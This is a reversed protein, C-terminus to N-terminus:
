PRSAKVRSGEDLSNEPALIVSEGERVGETIEAQEDNLLGVKVSQLRARGGRVAFVEWGGQESRFLASRPVILTSPNQRTFIRVRVRYDVGLALRDQLQPLEGEAFRVIVKVRQQEVGLSSIKTFGAPDVRQVYGTTNGGVAPGYIEVATNQVIGVADQSLVDTEVELQRLDGIELLVTGAAVFRESSEHRRLIVGDIPSRLTGRQQQTQAERLRAEAELREKELVAVALNKRKIYRDIMSPTLDAAAKLLVTAQWSLIDKQYDVESEVQDRQAQELEDETRGGTKVLARTRDLNAKAYDRKAKGAGKQQESSELQPKMAQSWLVSQQKILEEVTNDRNETISAEIRAVVAAARDVERQLDDAILRAVVGNQSVRDGERIAIPEIRGGFPMTIQYVDPLRTKGREDIYERIEGRSVKAMEVEDRNAMWSWVGLLAILATSAATCAIIINRPKM